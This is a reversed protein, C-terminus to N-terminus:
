KGSWFDGHIVGWSDEEDHLGPQREFERTAMDRVLGLTDAYPEYIDPFNQLVGIFANCTIRAKIKRMGKNKAVREALAQQAPEATWQHFRRLWSGTARGVETVQVASVKTDAAPTDLIESLDLAHPIDQLM